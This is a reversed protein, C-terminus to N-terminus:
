VSMVQTVLLKKPRIKGSRRIAFILSLSLKIVLRKCEAAYIKRKKVTSITIM